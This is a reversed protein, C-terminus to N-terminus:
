GKPLRVEFRFGGAPVNRGRITGGHQHVIQQCGYLGLGSGLGQLSTLGFPSFLEAVGSSPIGPGGRSVIVLLADGEEV